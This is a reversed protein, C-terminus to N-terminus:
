SSFEEVVHVGRIKGLRKCKLAPGVSALNVAEVKFLMRWTWIFGDEELVVVGEYIGVSPLGSKEWDELAEEGFIWFEKDRGQLIGELVEWDYDYETSFHRDNWWIHLIDEM